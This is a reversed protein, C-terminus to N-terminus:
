TPVRTSPTSTVSSTPWWSAQQVRQAETVLAPPQFRGFLPEDGGKSNFHNGVVFLKRGNYTFEGALPKRSATFAGSAPEIRGPSVTLEPGSAGATVGVPTTSTGGARDVFSM